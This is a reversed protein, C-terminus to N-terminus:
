PLGESAWTAMVLLWCVSTEVSGKEGGSPKRSGGCCSLSRPSEEVMMFSDAGTTPGAFYLPCNRWPATAADNNIFHLHKLYCCTGVNACCFSQAPGDTAVHAIQHTQWLWKDTDPAYGCQGTRM